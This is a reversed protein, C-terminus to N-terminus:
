TAQATKGAFYDPGMIAQMMELLPGIDAREAVRATLSSEDRYRGPTFQLDFREATGERQLAAIADLEAATLPRRVTMELRLEGSTFALELTDDKTGPIVQYAYWGRKTGNLLLEMRYGFLENVAAEAQNWWANLITVGDKLRKVLPVFFPRNRAKGIEEAAAPLSEIPLWFLHLYDNLDRISVRILEPYDPLLAILIDRGRYQRITRGIEELPDWPGSELQRDVAAAAEVLNGMNMAFTLEQKMIQMMADPSHSKGAPKWTRPLNQGPLLYLGVAHHPAWSTTTGAGAMKALTVPDAPFILGVQSRHPAQMEAVALLFTGNTGTYPALEIIQYTQGDKSLFQNVEPLFM